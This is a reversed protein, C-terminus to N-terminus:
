EKASVACKNKTLFSAKVWATGQGWAIAAWGDSCINTLTVTDGHYLYDLVASKESPSQRVNLADHAIVRATTATSTASPAPSATPTARTATTPTPTVTPDRPKIIPACAVLFLAILPLFARGNM